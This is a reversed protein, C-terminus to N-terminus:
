CRYNRLARPTSDQGGLRGSSAASPLPARHAVVAGEAALAAGPSLPLAPGSGAVPAEAAHAPRDARGATGPGSAWMQHRQEGEALPTM